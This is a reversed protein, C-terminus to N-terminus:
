FYRPSLKRTKVLSFYYSLMFEHSGSNYKGIRNLNLDYSYGFSLNDSLNMETMFAMQNGTRYSSGLWVFNKVLFSLNYDVQMKANQVYKLLTSPRCILDNNLHFVYGGMMFLHQSLESYVTKGGEEVEAYKGGFLQKTSLGLYYDKSYWYVGFNADPMLDNDQQNLIYEDDTDKMKYMGMDFKKYKLGLQVGMSLTSKNFKLKYSYSGMMTIDNMPGIKDQIVTGGMGMTNRYAPSHISIANTLPAGDINVWQNRSTAVASLREQTGTYAPNVLSKNFMYQTLLADQQSYATYSCIILVFIIYKKM